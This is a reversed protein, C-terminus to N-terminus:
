SDNRNGGHDEQSGAMDDVYSNNSIIESAEKLATPADEATKQLAIQAIAQAPKDGM